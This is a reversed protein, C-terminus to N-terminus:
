FIRFDFIICCCSKAIQHYHIWYYVNILSTIALCGTIVQIIEINKQLRSVPSYLLTELSVAQNKNLSRLRISRTIEAFDSNVQGCKRVTDVARSYNQLFAGYVDIEKAQGIFLDYYLIIVGALVNKNTWNCLIIVM